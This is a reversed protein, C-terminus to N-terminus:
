QEGGNSTQRQREEARPDRLAEFVRAQALLDNTDTRKVDLGGGDGLVVFRPDNKLLQKALELKLINLGGPGSLAQVQQTLGEVEAKGQALIGQAENQKSELYGDARLKAQNLYGHGEAIVRNVQAQTQNFEEEKRARVTNIKRREGETEERLKQTENIKQQYSRDVSGDPLLREFRYENLIVSIVEIGYPNLQDNLSAKTKEVARYRADPDFFQSTKLENMYTRVDARGFTVVLANVEDNDQAFELLLKKLKVPDAVVRYQITVSLAVENGDLSRTYVLDLPLAHSDSHSSGAGWTLYQVATDFRYLSDWPWLVVREGPKVIGDAVGGFLAPPLRRFVVGYETPGLQPLFADCASLFLVLLITALQKMTRM